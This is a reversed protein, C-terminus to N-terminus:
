NEPEVLLRIFGDSVTELFNGPDDLNTLLVLGMNTDPAFLLLATFNDYSGEHSIIEVGSETKIGWGMGYSGGSEVDEILPRWTETLNQDSVVRTGNPAVSRNVQTSMYYAMDLASAKISGSPALPDGTFDYSEETVVNGDDDFIHSASHNPNAQAEDASLTATKMGIPDFIREQLLRAYDDYLEGMEGGAALVGIYGAVSASINSYDFQKGPQGSLPVEPLLDFIDEASESEIDFEDEAEAPIGSSMSLLHRITVQNTAEADSLEFAPYIEVVPTDWDFLGEDVLTAIFMANVSKHTSGIHFLTEPTVPDNGNIDRVGFGKAFLVEDGQVVAAAVGPIHNEVRAQEVLDAFGALPDAESTDQAARNTATQALPAVPKEADSDGSCATTIVALILSLIAVGLIKPM